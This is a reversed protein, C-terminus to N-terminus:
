LRKKNRRLLDLGIVKTRRLRRKLLFLLSDRATRYLAMDEPELPTNAAQRAEHNRRAHGRLIYIAGALIAASLALWPWAGATQGGTTEQMLPAMALLRGSTIHM